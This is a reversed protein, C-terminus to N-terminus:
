KKQTLPTHAPQHVVIFNILVLRKYIPKKIKDSINCLQINQM